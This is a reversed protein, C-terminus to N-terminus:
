GGSRYAILHLGLPNTVGGAATAIMMTPHHAVWAFGLGLAISSSLVNAILLWMFRRKVSRKMLIRVLLYDLFAAQIGMTVAVLPVSTLSQGVVPAPFGSLILGCAIPLVPFWTNCASSALSALLAFAGTKAASGAEFRWALLGKIPIGVALFIWFFRLKHLKWLITWDVESFTM